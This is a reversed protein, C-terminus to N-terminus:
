NTPHKFVAVSFSNAATAAAALTVTVAGTASLAINDVFQDQNGTPVIGVITGGVLDSDVASSGTTAAALVTIAVSKFLPTQLRLRNVTLDEYRAM